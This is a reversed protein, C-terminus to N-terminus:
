LGDKRGDQTEVGSIGNSPPSGSANVELTKGYHADWGFRRFPEIMQGEDVLLFPQFCGSDEKYYPETKVTPYDGEYGITLFNEGDWRAVNSNRGRGSYWREPVLQDKRLVTLRMRKRERGEVTAKLM